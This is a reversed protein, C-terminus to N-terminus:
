IANVFSHHCYSFHTSTARKPHPATLPLKTYERGVGEFTSDATMQRSESDTFITSLLVSTSSGFINKNKIFKHYGYWVHYLVHVQKKKVGVQVSTCMYTHYM